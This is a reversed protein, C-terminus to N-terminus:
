LEICALKDHLDSLTQVHAQYAQDLWMHIFSISLHRMSAFPFILCWNTNEKEMETDGKGFLARSMSLSHIFGAFLDRSSEHQTDWDGHDTKYAESFFESGFVDIPCAIINDDVHVLFVGHLVRFQYGLTATEYVFSAKDFGRARFRRDFLGVKTLGRWNSKNVVIYPEWGLTYM